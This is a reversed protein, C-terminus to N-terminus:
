GRAQRRENGRLEFGEASAYRTQAPQSQLYLALSAMVLFLMVWDWTFSLYAPISVILLATATISTFGPFRFLVGALTAILLFAQIKTLDLSWDSLGPVEQWLVSYDPVMRGYWSASDPPPQKVVAPAKFWFLPYRIGGGLIIMFFFSLSLFNTVALPWRWRGGAFRLFGRHYSLALLLAAFLYQYPHLPVGMGLYGFLVAALGTAM